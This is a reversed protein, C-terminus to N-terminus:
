RLISLVLSTWAFWCLNFKIKISCRVFFFLLSMPLIEFMWLSTTSSPQHWIKKTLQSSFFFFIKLFVKMHGYRLFFLFDSVIEINRRLDRPLYVSLQSFFACLSLALFLKISAVVTLLLINFFPINFSSFVPEASNKRIEEKRTSTINFTILQKELLFFKIMEITFRTSHLSFFSDFFFFKLRWKHVCNDKLLFRM